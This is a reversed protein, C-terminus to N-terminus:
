EVQVRWFQPSTAPLPVTVLQPDNTLVVTQITTWNNPNLGGNQQISNTHNVDGSIWLLLNSSTLSVSILPQRPPAAAGFDDSLDPIGNGNADNTDTILLKLGLSGGGAYQLTGQYLTPAGPSRTLETDGFSLGGYDNTWDGALLTLQDFRNTAVRTIMVPGSYWESAQGDRAFSITGTVGNSGAAYDLQGTYQVLEFTHTFPGLDGLIPDHMALVMTGVRSGAARTWDFTLQGTGWAIEYTGTSTASVSQSVQFFDSVSDNNGDSGPLNLEAYTASAYMSPDELVLYTWYAYDAPAPLPSIQENVRAPDDTYYTSFHMTWVLGYGCSCPGSHVLLSEGAIHVEATAGRVAASSLIFVLAVLLTSLTTKM